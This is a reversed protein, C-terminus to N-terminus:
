ISKPDSYKGGDQSEFMIQCQIGASVAGLWTLVAETVEGRCRERHACHVGCRGDVLVLVFIVCM